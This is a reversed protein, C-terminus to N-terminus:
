TTLDRRAYGGVGVACVLAGIGTLTLIAAWDPPANPVLSLHGFPSLTMLWGPAAANQAVINLLFGGVVPVAGVAAVAGPIWGIAFAAAALSLWAIPATNFAGALAARIGLPAGTAVAGCWMAVAAAIHLAFLGM